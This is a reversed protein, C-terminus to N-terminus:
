EDDRNERAEALVRNIESAWQDRQDNGRRLETSVDRLNADVTRLLDRIAQAIEGADGM